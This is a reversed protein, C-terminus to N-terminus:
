RKMYKFGTMCIFSLIQRVSRFFGLNQNHRYINWNWAITRFKNASVSGKVKRYSALIGDVCEAEIQNHRLVNLWAAYDEHKLDPMLDKVMLERELVVTCCAIINTNLLKEYRVKKWYPTITKIYAGQENIVEYASYVFRCGTQQMYAIQKELKDPKWLDDSDLFALYTGEAALIGKNRTAAVGENKESFIKEIRTDKKCYEEIIKRSDDKSGDDVLILKWNEYTQALISDISERMYKSANYVPMIITVLSDTM